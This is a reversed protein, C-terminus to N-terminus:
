TQDSVPATLTVLVEQDSLRQLQVIRWGRSLHRRVREDDRLERGSPLPLQLQLRKTAAL